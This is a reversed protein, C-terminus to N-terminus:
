EGFVSVIKEIAAQDVVLYDYKMLDVINLSDASIFGVKPLNRAARLLGDDKEALSILVMKKEVPLKSIMDSLNSTKGDVLSLKDLMILRNESVKDSLVMRLAKNKLKKNINKSFNRDSRPGFTVGGGRWLPSRISGVRARGTGKQKWPKKGGGRVEGRTKTHAVIQRSNAQQAVMVQHVVEPNVEVSFVVESLDYQGIKEGSVNHIDIKAM